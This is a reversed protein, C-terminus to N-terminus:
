LIYIDTRCVLNREWEEMLGGTVRAWYASVERLLDVLESVWLDRQGVLWFGEGGEM